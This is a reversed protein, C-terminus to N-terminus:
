FFRNFYVQLETDFVRDPVAQLPVVAGVRLNSKPGLQIHLGSTLNLLDLRNAPNSILGSPVGSFPVAVSDTDQITSTYHLESVLAFGSFFDRRDDRYLWRGVGLDYQMLNQETYVGYDGQDGVVDNGSAAFRIQAFSQLFWHDNPAATMAVFPMLHVGQNKITLFGFQSRTEIDSGTPLGLGLGSALAFSDDAYLLAKLYMTLNGVNGSSSVIGSDEFSFGSFFPMRVDISANGDLFTKEFGILYRHLDLSTTVPGFTPPGQLKTIDQANYFANYLFYVRDTPISTNNESVNYSGGGGLPTSFGFRAGQGTPDGGAFSVPPTLTDGFMNPARALRVYSERASSRNPRQSSRPLQNTDSRNGLGRNAAPSEDPTQPRFSPPTQGFATLCILALPAFGLVIGKTHRDM